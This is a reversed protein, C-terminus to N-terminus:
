STQQLATDACRLRGSLTGKEAEKLWKPSCQEASASSLTSLLTHSSQLLSAKGTSFKGHHRSVVMERLPSDKSELKLALCGGDTKMFASVFYINAFPPESAGTVGRTKSINLASFPFEM